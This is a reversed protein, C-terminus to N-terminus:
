EHAGLPPAHRNRPNRKRNRMASHLQVSGMGGRRERVTVCSASKCRNHWTRAPNTRPYVPRFGRLCCFGTSLTSQLPKLDARSPFKAFFEDSAPPTRASAGSTAAAVFLHAARRFPHNPRLPVTPPFLELFTGVGAASAIPSHEAPFNHRVEGCPRPNAHPELMKPFATTGAIKMAKQLNAM